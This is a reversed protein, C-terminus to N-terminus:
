FGHGLEPAACTNTIHGLTHLHDVDLRLQPMVAEIRM